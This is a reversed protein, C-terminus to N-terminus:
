YAVWVKILFNKKAFLYIKEIDRRILKILNLLVNTKGSGSGGIILIRHLYDPIYHWTPLQNPLKEDNNSIKWSKKTM